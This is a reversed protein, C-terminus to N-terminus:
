ILLSLDQFDKDFDILDNKENSDLIKKLLNIVNDSDIQKESKLISVSLSEYKIIFFDFIFEFKFIYNSKLNNNESLYHVTKILNNQIKIFKRKNKKVNKNM